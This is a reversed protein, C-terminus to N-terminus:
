RARLEPGPELTTLAEKLFDCAKADVRRVLFVRDAAGLKVSIEDERDARKVMSQRGDLHVMMTKGDAAPDLIM